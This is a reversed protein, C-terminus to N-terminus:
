AEEEREGTAAGAKQTGEAEERRGEAAEQETQFPVNPLFIDGIADLWSFVLFFLLPTHLLSLAINPLKREISIKLHTSFKLFNGIHFKIQSYSIKTLM